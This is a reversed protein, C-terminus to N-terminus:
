MQSLNRDSKDFNIRMTVDNMRVLCHDDPLVFERLMNTSSM